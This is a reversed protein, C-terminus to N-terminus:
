FKLRFGTRNEWDIKEVGAPPRSDGEMELTTFLSVNAAVKVDLGGNLMLRWDELESWRPQFFTLATFTVGERLQFGTSVFLSLRQKYLAVTPGEIKEREVMHAAGVALRKRPGKWVDWRLGVGALFRSELRQFPNTQAQLFSLTSWRNSLTHNHRLHGLVSRATEAGGSSTRKASGILRWLEREGRWQLRADTALSTQETNGGEAGYSGGLIGSWGHEKEDFGTLSNVIAAETSSAAVILVASVLVTRILRRADGKEVM